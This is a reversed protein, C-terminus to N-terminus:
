LRKKFESQFQDYLVLVLSSSVSRMMNSLNGKFFGNLGEQKQIKRFCDTTSSYIPTELGSNMMMRRRVTDFPYTITESVITVMQAFLFKVFFSKNQYDPILKKGTDFFGFYMGRYIFISFLSVGIGNYLGSIGDSKIISTLCHSLSNFQTHGKRGIDVGLRTRAFDLPYVIMMCCAGGMGGAMINGLLFMGPQTKSDYKNFTRQFFDKFAFNFATTPFYRIINTWNGKWFSFFGEEKFSRVFCNLVGTYKKGVLQKNSDQTQLLLKVRELPASVTKSIAGATGGLIFDQFFNSDSKSGSHSM